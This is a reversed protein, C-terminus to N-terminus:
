IGRSAMNVAWGLALWVGLVLFAQGTPLVLFPLTLLMGFMFINDGLKM